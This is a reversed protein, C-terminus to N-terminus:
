TGTQRAAPPHGAGARAPRNAGPMRHSGALRRAPWRNASGDSGCRGTACAGAGARARGQGADAPEGRRRICRPWTATSRNSRSSGGRASSRCNARPERRGEDGPSCPGKRRIAPSFGATRRTCAPTTASPPPRPWATLAPAATGRPASRTLVEGTSCIGRPAYGGRVEFWQGDCVVQQVTMENRTLTGTKDSCIVTVSGLTEVAPLRRIVAKRRAMRQVGIALTITLVAPLGEPIAAVALGVAAM